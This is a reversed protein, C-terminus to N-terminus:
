GRHTINGRASIYTAARTAAANSPFVLVGEEQLASVQDSRNQPDRDTGCVSVVVPLHRGALQRKADNLALLLEKAPDHHVGYGLVIDLLLVATQPDQMEAVIRHNRVSPEIM